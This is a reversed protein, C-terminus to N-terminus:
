IRYMTPGYPPFQLPIVVVAAQSHQLSIMVWICQSGEVIWGLRTAEMAVSPLNLSQASSGVMGGRLPLRKVEVELLGMKWSGEGCREGKREKETLCSGSVRCV